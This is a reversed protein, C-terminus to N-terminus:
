DDVPTQLVRIHRASCPTTEGRIHLAACRLLVGILLGVIVAGWTFSQPTLPGRSFPKHHLLYMYESEPDQQSVRTAPSM